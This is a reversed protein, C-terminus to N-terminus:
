LVVVWLQYSIHEIKLTEERFGEPLRYIYLCPFTIAQILINNVTFHGAGDGVASFYEIVAPTAAHRRCM